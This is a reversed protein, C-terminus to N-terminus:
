KNRFRQNRGLAERVLAVESWGGQGGSAIFSWRSPRSPCIGRGAIDVPGQIDDDDDNDESNPAGGIGFNGRSQHTRRDGTDVDGVIDGDHNGADPHEITLFNSM